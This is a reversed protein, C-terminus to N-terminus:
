AFHSYSLAKSRVIFYEWNANAVLLLRSIVYLTQGRSAPRRGHAAPCDARTSMFMTWSCKIDPTKRSCSVTIIVRLWLTLLLDTYVERWQWAKLLSCWGRVYTEDDWSGLIGGTFNSRLRIFHSTCSQLYVGHQVTEHRTGTKEALHTHPYGPPPTTELRNTPPKHQCAWLTNFPTKWGSRSFDTRHSLTRQIIRYNTFKTILLERRTLSYSNWDKSDLSVSIHNEYKRLKGWNREQFCTYLM